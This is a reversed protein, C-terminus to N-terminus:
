PFIEEIQKSREAWAAIEKQKQEDREQQWSQWEGDTWEVSEECNMEAVLKQIGEPTTPWDRDPIGLPTEDNEFVEIEVRKGEAGEPAPRDLVIKGGILRGTMTTM